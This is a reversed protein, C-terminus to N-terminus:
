PYPMSRLLANLAEGARQTMGGTGRNAVVQPAVVTEQVEDASLRAFKRETFSFDRGSRLCPKELQPSADPKNRITRRLAASRTAKKIAPRAEAKM